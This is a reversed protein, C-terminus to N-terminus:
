LRTGCWECREATRAVVAECSPCSQQEEPPIAQILDAPILPSAPDPPASPAPMPFLPACGILLAALSQAALLLGPNAPGYGLYLLGTVGVLSSLLLSIAASAFLNHRRTWLLYGAVGAAVLVILYIPLWYSIVFILVTLALASRLTKWKIKM